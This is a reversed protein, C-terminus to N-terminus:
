IKSVICWLMCQNDSWCSTDPDTGSRKWEKWADTVDDVLCNIMCVVESNGRGGEYWPGLLEECEPTLYIRGEVGTRDATPISMYADFLQREEPAAKAMFATDEAKGATWGHFRNAWGSNLSLTLLPHAVVNHVAWWFEIWFRTM